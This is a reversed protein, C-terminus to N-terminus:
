PMAGALKIELHPNPLNDLPPILTNNGHFFSLQAYQPTHSSKLERQGERGGEERGRETHDRIETNRV